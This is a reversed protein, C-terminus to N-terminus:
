HEDENGVYIGQYDGDLLRDDMGASHDFDWPPSFYLKEEGAKCYTYFSGWGVDINLMFEHLLYMDVCSDLDLVAAIEDQDGSDLAAVVQELVGQVRWYDEAQQEDDGIFDSRLDFFMETDQYPVIFTYEQKATMGQVQELLFGVEETTQDDIDIRADDVEVQECLLYVGRYEGQLYVEVFCCDTVFDLGELMSAAQFAYYNRLNSRDFFEALLVWDRAAKASNESGGLLLDTKEDLKIKYSKKDYTFTGNGRQRVSAVTEYAEILAPYTIVLETDRYDKEYFSAGEPLSLEIVPMQLPDVQTQQLAHYCVGCILALSVLFVVGKKRKSGNM